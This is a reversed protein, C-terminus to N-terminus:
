VDSSQVKSLSKTNGHWRWWIPHIGLRAPWASRGGASVTEITTLMTGSLGPTDLSIPSYHHACNTGPLGPTDRSIPSYHHAYNTGSLGPTDMSLLCKEPPDLARVMHIKLTGLCINLPDRASGEFVYMAFEDIKPGTDGIPGWSFSWLPEVPNDPARTGLEPGRLAAFFMSGKRFHHCNCLREIFRM